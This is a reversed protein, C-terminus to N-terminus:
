PGGLHHGQLVYSGHGHRGRILPPGRLSRKVGQGGAGGGLSHGELGDLLARGEAHGLSYGDLGQWGGGEALNM